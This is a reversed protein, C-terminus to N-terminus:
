NTVLKQRHLVGVFAPYSTPSPQVYVIDNDNAVAADVATQITAYINAGTPRNANNDAIRITQANAAFGCCFLVLILTPTKM